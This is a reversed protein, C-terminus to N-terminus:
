LKWSRIVCLPLMICGHLWFYNGAHFRSNLTVTRISRRRSLMKMWIPESCFSNGGTSNLHYLWTKWMFLGNPLVSWIIFTNWIGTLLKLLFLHIVCTSNSRKLHEVNTCTWCMQCKNYSGTSSSINSDQHHYMFRKLLSSSIRMYTSWTKITLNVLRPAIVYFPKSSTELNRVSCNTLELNELNFYNSIFDCCNISM